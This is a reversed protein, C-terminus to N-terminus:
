KGGGLKTASDTLCAKLTELTGRGLQRLVSRHDDVHSLSFGSSDHGGGKQLDM